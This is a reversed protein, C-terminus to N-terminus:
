ISSAPRPSVHTALTVEAHCLLAASELPSPRGLFYGQAQAVGLDRLAHLEAATEVGEAVIRSGTEQAFRILASALAHCAVNSDINRTLSMDLKILDPALKLIHRFSAYGAGADDVAVRLGRQRLSRLADDVEVYEQIFSHETIELMIREFPAQELVRELEGSIITAPSANISLYVAPPLAALGALAKEIARIELEIGLEVKAAEDFWVDPTRRPETSFRSLAEFGVVRHQELDYIPQYVISLDDSILVSQIRTRMEDYADDAAQEKDIQRAILDAFVRMVSLDRENLSQDPTYSFCCFTGYIRGNQLRIPVSLHARVPVAATAPLEMAAPIAFADVILEPLRGEIVRQCYSDELPDGGGVQIPANGNASDVQRFVRRGEAFQSIFAVDMQLHTRIATLAEKLFTDVTADKHRADQVLLKDDLGGAPIVRSVIFDAITPPPAVPSGDAQIAPAPKDEMRNPQRQAKAPTDPNADEAVPKAVRFTNRGAKKAQYLAQDARIILKDHSVDEGQYVAIGISTTVTIAQPLVHFGDAVNRIIKSAVIEADQQEQLEEILVTFEDGGLRAVTDVERVSAKLRAAFEKLLEDGAGHGLSDNISKFHDIDLYMLAMPRGSRRTRAMSQVLREHFLSRNPLDTLQDNQAMYLLKDTAAKRQTIDTKIALISQPQGADDRVLTWNAEIAVTSGDKRREVIEGSWEGHEMVIRTAEHLPTPDDCLIDEIASGIVEKATWGYLREAGKNWFRIRHDLGRVIIADKAKDLLSAQESILADAAQRELEAAARTAFIRLTPQVFASRQLRERYLVFLLGVPQGVSNDLRGGVYAEASFASLLPSCSFREAAAAPVMYHEARLLNECPTGEIVYDFNDAIEGDVIAAITRAALPEGPLLRAVFGAQAGVAETMNRVLQQFFETGTRASVGAAVKSVASQIRRREELSRINGIGFALDDALEQLLKMEEAAVPRTENSYLTLLGFTRDKDRLPLCIMGRFGRQQAETLWPSVTPDQTIDESVQPLGSRIARGALGLGKPDDESWSVPLAAVYAADDSNGAHAAIRIIRADDDQAYGVWALRYGGIDLALRCIDVLLKTEDTARILLENCASHMQLARNLRALDLESQKRSTLDTLAGVMRVVKGRSDRVVFARDLVYAYSGDKCMFRYEDSWTEGGSEIVQQHDRLVREKDDPHIRRSWSEIGEEFEQPQYGFLTQIGENWWTRNAKADWDWIVDTAARAVQKFREESERLADQTQKRESIDRFSVTLGEESPFARVESWLQLPGYFEEFSVACNERFARHFERDFASGVLDKFEEWLVTGLLAGRPRRLHAEAAKNLYTFRWQRDLTLVADDINDLMGTLRLALRAAEDEAQKKQTIDLIRAATLTELARRQRRLELQVMVQEALTKLATIQVETLTRPVCDMVALTGLAFGSPSVLPMGAYFRLGPAGIVLPNGAFLPNQQTDPVVFLDTGRIAHACFAIDRDTERLALGVASKFWQRGEDVLTMATMPTECIHALLWTLRDFDVEPPTDLIAYSKLTELRSQEDREVQNTANNSTM